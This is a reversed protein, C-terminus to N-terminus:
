VAVYKLLRFLLKRKLSVPSATPRPHYMHGFEANTGIPIKCYSTIHFLSSCTLTYFLHSNDLKIRWFPTIFSPRKNRWPYSHLTRGRSLKVPTIDINIKLVCWICVPRPHEKLSLYCSSTMLNATVRTLTNEYSINKDSETLHLVLLCINLLSLM